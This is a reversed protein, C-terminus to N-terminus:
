WLLSTWGFSDRAEINSKFKLLTKIADTAGAYAARHLPTCSNNDLVDVSMGGLIMGEVEPVMNRVAAVHLATYKMKIKEWDSALNMVRRQINVLSETPAKTPKYLSELNEVHASQFNQNSVQNSTPNSTKTQQQTRM